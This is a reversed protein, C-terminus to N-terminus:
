RTSRAAMPPPITGAAFPHEPCGMEIVPTQGNGNSGFRARRKSLSWGLYKAVARALAITEAEPGRAECSACRARYRTTDLGDVRKRETEISGRRLWTM